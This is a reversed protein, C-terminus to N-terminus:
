RAEEAARGNADPLPLELAVETGGEELARVVCRGREGYLQALRDRVSTLGIGDAGPSAPFGVGDDQVALSLSRGNRRARVRVTGGAPRPSLGHRVANEVLPQLLVAPVPVDQCDAPVDLEVRLRDGFRAEELALYTRAFRLEDSLPVVEDGGQQLALRLLSSLQGVMRRADGPRSGILGAITNLCNFLFHPQLQSRLARLRAEALHTRLAALKREGRVLERHHNVVHGIAVLAAYVMVNSHLRYTLSFSYFEAVSSSSPGGFAQNQLADAFLVVLALATGLVLHVAVRAVVRPSRVPFRRALAFVLPTALAWLVADSLAYYIVQPWTAGVKIARLKVAYLMGWALWSLGVIAWLRLAPRGREEPM